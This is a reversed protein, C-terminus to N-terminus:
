IPTVKFGFSGNFPSIKEDMLCTFTYEGNVRNSEPISVQLSTYPAEEFQGSPTAGIFEFKVGMGGTAISDSALQITGPTVTFSYRYQNGVQEVFEYTIGRPKLITYPSSVTAAIVRATLQTPTEIAGGGTGIALYYYTKGSTNLQMDASGTSYFSMTNEKQTIMVKGVSDGRGVYCMTVSDIWFLSQYWYSNYPNIGRDDSTIILFKAKFPLTLTNPNNVGYTGTGFYFGTAIQVKNGIQGLFTYTYEDPEAPPYSSKDPSNVYSVHEVNITPDIYREVVKVTIQNSTM